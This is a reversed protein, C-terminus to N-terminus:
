PLRGDLATSRVEVVSGASPEQRHLVWGHLEWLVDLAPEDDVLGGARHHQDADPSPERQHLAVLRRHEHVQVDRDVLVPVHQEAREALQRHQDYAGAELHQERELDADIKRM